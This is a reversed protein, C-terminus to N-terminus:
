RRPFLKRYGHSIPSPPGLPGLLRDPRRLSSFFRVGIAVRVGGGRADVRDVGYGAAISCSASWASQATKNIAKRVELGNWAISDLSVFVHNKPPSSSIDLAVLTV